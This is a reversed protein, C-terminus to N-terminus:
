VTVNHILQHVRRRVVADCTQHAQELVPAGDLLHSANTGDTRRVDQKTLFPVRNQAMVATREINIRIHSPIRIMKGSGEGTYLVSFRRLKRLEAKGAIQVLVEGVGAIGSVVIVPFLASIM